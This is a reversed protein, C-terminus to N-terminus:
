IYAVGNRDDNSVIHLWVRERSLIMEDDDYETGRKYWINQMSQKLFNWLTFLNSM